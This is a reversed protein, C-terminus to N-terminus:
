LRRYLLLAHRYHLTTPSPPSRRGRGGDSRWAGGGLFLLSRACRVCAIDPAAHDAAAGGWWARTDITRRGLVALGGGGGGAAGGDVGAADGGLAGGRDDGGRPPAAAAAAARASAAAVAAAPVPVLLASLKARDGAAIVLVDLQTSAAGGIHCQMAHHRVENCSMGLAGRQTTDRRRGGVKWQM